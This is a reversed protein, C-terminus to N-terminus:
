DIKEIKSATRHMLLSIGEEDANVLIVGGGRNGGQLAASVVYFGHLGVEFSPHTL